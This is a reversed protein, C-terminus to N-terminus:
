GDVSVSRQTQPLIDDVLDTKLSLHMTASSARRRNRLSVTSTLNNRFHNSCGTKEQLACGVDGNNESTAHEKDQSVGPGEHPQKQMAVVAQNRRFRKLDSGSAELMPPLSTAIITVGMRRFVALWKNRATQDAAYCFVEDCPSSPEVTKCSVIFMDFHWPMIKILLADTSMKVSELEPWVSYLTKDPKLTLIGHQVHMLM